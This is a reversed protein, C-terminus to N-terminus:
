GAGAAGSTRDERPMGWMRHTAAGSTRDERPTDWMRHTTKVPTVRRPSSVRCDSGMQFANM